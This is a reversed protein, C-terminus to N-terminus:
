VCIHARTLPFYNTLAHPKIPFKKVFRAKGSPLHIWRGALRAVIVEHPVDLFLVADITLQEQLIKAQPLTRPFGDLLFSENRQPQSSSSIVRKMLIEIVTKDPVLVGKDLYQKVEVGLDTKKSIHHRLLDGASCMGHNM